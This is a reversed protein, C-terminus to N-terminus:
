PAANAGSGNVGRRVRVRRCGLRLVVPEYGLVARQAATTGEDFDRLVLM